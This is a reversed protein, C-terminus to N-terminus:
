LWACNTMTSAIIENVVRKGACEASRTVTMMMGEVTLRTEVQAAPVVEM